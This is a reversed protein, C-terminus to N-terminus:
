VSSAELFHARIGAKALLDIGLTSRYPRRFWVETVGANIMAKACAACPACTTFLKAPMGGTSARVLANIEAHVCGCGGQAEPHDCTNPLGSANGNYGISLARTVSWDTIVVGVTQRQCTGRQAVIEAIQLWM